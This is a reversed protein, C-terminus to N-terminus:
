VEEVPVILESEVRQGDTIDTTVTIKYTEGDVGSSILLTVNTDPLTNIVNAAIGAPEVKITAVSVKQGDGLFDAFDINARRIELPQKILTGVIAM